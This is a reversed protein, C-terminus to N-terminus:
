WVDNLHPARGLLTIAQDEQKAVKVGRGASSTSPVVRLTGFGLRCIINVQDSTGYLTVERRTRSSAKGREKAIGKWYRELWSM